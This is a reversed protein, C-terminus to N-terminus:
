AAPAVPTFPDPVVVRIAAALKSGLQSREPDEFAQLANRLRQYLSLFYFPSRGNTLMGGRWRSMVHAEIRMPEFFSMQTALEFCREEARKPHLAALLLLMAPPDDSALWAAAVTVRDVGLDQPLSWDRARPSVEAMLDTLTRRTTM